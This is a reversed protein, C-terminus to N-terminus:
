NGLWEVLAQYVMVMALTDLECYRLLQRRMADRQAQPLAPDLLTAYAIMAKAGNAVVEGEGSELRQLADNVEHDDFLPSLLKYPDTAVGEHEVIWTQNVFNFSPMAMTGYVPQSYRARLTSSHRLVAPLFKKMSSSGGTGPLFVQDEIMRGMDFLRKGADKELGLDDLFQLLERADSPNRASIEEAVDGLVSREHPYWHLVTGRDRGIAARLQRTVEISPPEIGETLLVQTAHRLSGDPQMEHHSFQFLTQQYPRNGVHYPLAPRSTEFDIFHLPFQWAEMAPRLARDNLYLETDGQGIERWQLEQRATM